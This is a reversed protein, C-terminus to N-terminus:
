PKEAMTKIIGLTVNWYLNSHEYQAKAKLNSHLFNLVTQGNLRELQFEFVSYNEPLDPLEEIRNWSNYKLLGNPIFELITGKAYYDHGHLTGRFEIVSGPEWSTAVEINGDALWERILAQDTLVSWIKDPDAAVSIKRAVFKEFTV